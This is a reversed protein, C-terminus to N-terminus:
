RSFPRNYIRGIYSTIREIDDIIFIVGNQIAKEIALSLVMLRRTGDSEYELPLSYNKDEGKHYSDIKIESLKFMSESENPNKQLAENFRSLSETIKDKLDVPLDKPLKELDTIDINNIEFRGLNSMIVICLNALVFIQHQIM